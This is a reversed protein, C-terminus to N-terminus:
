CKKIKSLRLNIIGNYFKDQNLLVDNDFQLKAEYYALSSKSDCFRVIEFIFKDKGYEIIDNNVRDSSSTYHKWDTDKVSCRKRLKGKLPPAKVIKKAQKKGIYQRGTISNTIIYIFGFFDTPIDYEIGNYVWHGLNDIM